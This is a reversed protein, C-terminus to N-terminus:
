AKQLIFAFTDGKEITSVIEFDRKWYFGYDTMPSKGLQMKIHAQSLFAITGDSIIRTHGPDGWAWVCDWTPCGACFYGGPVLIRWFEAFQDFFFRWDGQRGCHELVDYAHIEEFTNDDFPYPLVDLDHVVDPEVEPNIDLTVLEDWEPRIGLEPNTLWKNHRRGSGILLEM